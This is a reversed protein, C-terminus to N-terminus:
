LEGAKVDVRKVNPQPEDGDDAERTRKKALADTASTSGTDQPTTQLKEIPATTHQETSGAPAEVPRPPNAATPPDDDAATTTAIKPVQSNM